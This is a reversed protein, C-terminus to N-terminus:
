CTPAAITVESVSISRNPSAKMKIGRYKSGEPLMFTPAFASIALRTIARILQTNLACVMKMVKGIAM